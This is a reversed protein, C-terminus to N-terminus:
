VFAVAFWVNASRGSVNCRRKGSDSIKGMTRLESFRPRVALVTEGLAMACEDATCPHAQVHALCRARLNAAKGEIAVAAQQSTGETKFGPSQPYTATM